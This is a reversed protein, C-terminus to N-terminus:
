LQSRVPVVKLHSVTWVLSAPTAPFTPLLPQRSVERHIMPLAHPGNRSVKDEKKGEKNLGHGCGM